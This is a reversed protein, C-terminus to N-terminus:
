EKFEDDFKDRLFAIASQEILEASHTIWLIRKFGHRELLKVATFTKGTGTAKIILQRDIGAHLEDISACIAKEQYCRLSKSM